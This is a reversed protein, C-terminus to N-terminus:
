RDSSAHGQIACMIGNTVDAAIDASQLLREVGEVGGYARAGITGWLSTAGKSSHCVVPHHALLLADCFTDENTPSALIGRLAAAFRNAPPLAPKWDDKVTYPQTNHLAIREAQAAAVSRVEQWVGISPPM